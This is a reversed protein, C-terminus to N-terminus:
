RIRFDTFGLAGGREFYVRIASRGAAARFMARADEASTIPQRNIQFIVDGPRLGTSRQTDIGIDYILAGQDRRINREQRVAATLTVLQLDGLVTLKEAVSTPLDEVRLLARRERGDRRFVAGLTDGPGVDLKVAEWDLFTHLATGGASVLVDGARIGAREAPGGPAVATVPVGGRRKWDRLDEMGAVELGVWARRVAGLERLERAVRVAREIPIAFGIGVSGGSESFISSNVGVVHGLANALPGGSNGPNIAADTQIMRVYVRNDEGSPLLNRGVASVVGATVSPDTNGLLYGYPNGVAVVWEGIMLDASTGLPATPLDRGEIKLVAIDTLPDDGLLQAEYDSGDRTTVVIREAGATVHQNTIIVGDATVLFGSGLGQVLQEYGRPIFFLDWATQPFRRERRVVNVSVVAPAVRAAADVIASHRSRSISDSLAPPVAQPAPLPPADFPPPFQPAADGCAAAALLILAALARL